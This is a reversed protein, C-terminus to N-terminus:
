ARIWTSCGCWISPPLYVDNSARGESFADDVNGSGSVNINRVVVKTAPSGATLKELFVPIALQGFAPTASLCARFVCFFHQSLEALFHPLQGCRLGYITQMSVMRIM